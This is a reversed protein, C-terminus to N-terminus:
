IQKATSIEIAPTQRNKELSWMQSSTFSEQGCKYNNVMEKGDVSFSTQCYDVCCQAESATTQYNNNM